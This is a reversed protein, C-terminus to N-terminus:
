ASRIAEVPAVQSARLAPAFAAVQSLLSLMAAGILVYLWPLRSLEFQSIMWQNFGYALLVGVVIGSCCILANELLFYTLINQRTAGLARRVGIQRRRQGVWFSSLGAVGAGTVALLIISMAGMLLSLRRDSRYADSRIQEFTRVGANIGSDGDPIVREPDQLYLAALISKAAAAQRGPKTRIVYYRSPAVLRQPILASNWVMNDTSGNAAASQLRDVIGIITSPKTANSFYIQKGLADGQPFHKDALAKTVIIVPPQVIDLLSGNGIENSQFNRGAILRLGLTSVTREDADYMSVLTDINMGPNLGSGLTWTMGTLPLSNTEYAGVVDPLQRLATVDGEVSSRISEKGADTNMDSKPASSAVLLLDNEVIGTPRSMGDFRARIIFLANCVIALTLAIQLAILLAGAKHHRLASIIPHFTM